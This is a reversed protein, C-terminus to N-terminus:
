ESRCTDRSYKRRDLDLDDTVANYEVLQVDIREDFVKAVDIGETYLGAAILINRQTDLNKNAAQVPRLTVVSGAVFIACVLCVSVAVVIIQRMSEKNAADSPM